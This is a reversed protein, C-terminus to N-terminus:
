KTSLPLAPPSWSGARLLCPQTLVCLRELNNRPPSRSIRSQRCRRERCSLWHLCGRCRPVDLCLCVGGVDQCGWALFAVGWSGERFAGAAAAGLGGGATSRASQLVVPSSCFWREESSVPFKQILATFKLLPPSWILHLCYWLYLEKRTVAAWLKDKHESNICSEFVICPETAHNICRANYCVNINYFVERCALVTVLFLFLFIRCWLRSILWGVLIRFYVKMVRSVEQLWKLSDGNWSNSREPSLPRHNQSAKCSWTMVLASSFNCQSCSLILTEVAAFVEMCFTNTNKRARGQCSNLM